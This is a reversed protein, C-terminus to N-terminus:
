RRSARCRSRSRAASAASPAVDRNRTEAFRMQGLRPVLKSTRASAARVRNVRPAGVHSLVGVDLLRNARRDRAEATEVNEDVVGADADEGVHRLHRRSLPRVHM